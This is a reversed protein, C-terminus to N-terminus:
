GHSFTEAELRRLYIRESYDSKGPVGVADARCHQCHRFVEVYPEAQRRAADLQACTPPELAAFKHQPILPIINLRLIGLAGVTEAVEAIHRDNIGPILVTNVKLAIGQNAAKGLGEMQRQILLEAGMRGPVVRGHYCVGGCIKAQIEPDVANVTVTLTDIGVENLEEIREALLLGNTSMCRMLEPYRERIKRFTELAHDTALADGPGAVGAVALEPCLKLARGVAEVAEEPTMIERAVGPRDERDNLSRKCFNCFLNCEPAVPLHIRGRNAAAGFCPHQALIRERSTM